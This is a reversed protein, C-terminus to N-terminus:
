RKGERLKESCRHCYISTGYLDLQGDVLTNALNIQIERGCRPCKTFVNDEEIFLKRKGHKLYYM